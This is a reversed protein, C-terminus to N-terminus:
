GSLLPATVRDPRAATTTSRRRATSWGSSWRSVSSTTRSASRCPARGTSGNWEAADLAVDLCALNDQLQPLSRAGLIPVVVGARRKLVWAIAVQSATRGSEARDGGGRGRDAPQARHRLRRGSGRPSVPTPRDRRGSLTSAPSCGVAWSAGRTVALDLAEAMPLLEREPTREVLSYQIQLGVFPTWGRLDALTNARAVVWAPADSIGVYLVKGARVQDDLARMLEELPTM